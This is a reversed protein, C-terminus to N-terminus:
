RLSFDESNRTLNPSYFPDDSLDWSSAMYRAERKYRHKKEPNDEAGRSISELHYMEAFPTWINDYGARSLKLCFDVDNFAVPLNKEDLGGVQDFLRKAFVMCAGTVASYSQHVKLRYCYGPHQGPFHKHAHGAIGGVGLVIGGHQITGNEYYLKAGVCGVGPQIAWSVMESLWDPSIAEIDNNILGIIAGNAKAVAFNNMASFNFAHPYPLVTINPASAIEDLYALTAPEVSQNDVVIIEYNRYLTKSTISEICRRLLDVKDRTLIILSALPEPQPVDFRLRCYPTEAAPEALAPLKTREIHDRLVSLSIERKDMAARGAEIDPLPVQRSHYLVKAIHRIKDAAFLEVIRLNLDYDQNGDFKSRWGGAARITETRYLTSHGLFNYSQLLPLSFDPKFCPAFRASNENIRDEDGYVIEAMPHQVVELALEHLANRHLTDSQGLLVTWEGTVSELATNCMQSVSRETTQLVKMRSGNPLRSLLTKVPDAESPLCAICLEWNGYSQASVSKLTEYLKVRPSEPLPLIVSILPAKAMASLKITPGSDPVTEYTEIWANYNNNGTTKPYLIRSGVAALGDRRILAMARRFLRVVDIGGNVLVHTKRAFELGQEIYGLRRIRADTHRVSSLRQGPSFRLIRAGNPVVFDAQSGTARLHFQLYTTEWRGSQNQIRLRVSNLAAVDSGLELILRYNGPSISPELQWEIEFYSAESWIDRDSVPSGVGLRVDRGFFSRLRAIIRQIEFKM